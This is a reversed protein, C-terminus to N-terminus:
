GSETDDLGLVIRDLTTLVVPWGRSVMEVVKDPVLGTLVSSTDPHPRPASLERVAEDSLAVHLTVADGAFTVGLRRADAPHLRIAEGSVLVPRLVALRQRDGVALVPHRSMAAALAARAEPALPEAELLRRAAKLTDAHGADKLPKVALGAYLERVASEPLGVSGPELTESDPVIVGRASYDVSKDDLQGAVRALEDALSLLPKDSAGLVPRECRNNDFLADVSQQLMRKENRIILGPANLDILKKLRNNQNLVRRYLDNLDSTAWAGSPLRLIPRLGAPLVSIADLVVWGLRGPHLRALLKRVAEAGTETAFAEAGHLRRAGELEEDSLLKGLPLFTTGPDTVAHDQCQVVRGLADPGMGLLDAVPKLFWCHLVPAALEVHGMRRRRVRSPAVKVGCRDCIMGKHKMGRYKGCACEWDKEPGFIRECFLGDKEARYTRYNITEPKKVEGFSWSRVNYPSAGALELALVDYRRGDELVAEAGENTRFTPVLGLAQLLLVLRHATEPVAPAVPERRALADYARTRGEAADSEVTLMELLNRRYGARLLARCVALSVRQGAVPMQWVPDYDSAGRGAGRAALKDELRLTTKKLRLHAFRGSVGRGAWSPHELRGSQRLRSGLRSDPRALVAVPQGAVEPMEARPVVRAVVAQRGRGAELVDGVRLPRRVTVEVTVEFATGEPVDDCQPGTLPGRCYPCATAEGPPAVDGCQACHFRRRAALRVASVRGPDLLDYSLSDNQPDEGLRGFIAHLLREEASREATADRPATKGVLVDGRRVESGPQIVGRRDLRALKYPALNPVDRTLRDEGTTLERFSRTLRFVPASTFLDQEVVWDAVALADGALGPCFFDPGAADAAAVLVRVGTDPPM